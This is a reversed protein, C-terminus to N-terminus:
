FIASEPSLTPDLPFSLIIPYHKLFHTHMSKKNM